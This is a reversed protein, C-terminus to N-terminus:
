PFQRLTSFPSEGGIPPSHGVRRQRTGPRLFAHHAFGLKATMSFERLTKPLPNMLGEKWSLPSLPLLLSTMVADNVLPNLAHINARM